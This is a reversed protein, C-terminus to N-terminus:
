RSSEGDPDARRPPASARADAERVEIRRDVPLGTLVQTVGSPWRVELRDVAHADGLGFTPDIQSQSLYSGGTRVMRTQTAGGATVTVQAGIGDRNSTEGVLHVRLWGGHRPGRNEFVAAPGGNTSLALDPDGDGDLDAYAAGRAVRPRALDGGATATVDHFDGGGLNRFLQQPQAFKVQAQVREVERDLHGNALFLDLWGDLDYDFFFTGWGLTLLTAPGLESRRAVDVFFAEGRNHYLGVMEQAFYSVIVSPRGSRDYDAADIGMGGRVQGLSSVAMGSAAGLEEFTGDGRNRFLLNPQTDGAVAVDVPGDGDLDLLAVGMGKMTPVEIGAEATRDAFRVTGGPGLGENRYFRPSDGRYTEPTCYTKTSGDLSCFLDDDATWEVYRSVLLDLRGDADADFLVAGAGLEYADTLGAAATVDAFRGGRNELVRDSGLCALVLDQDGDGDLDGAAGGLCYAGDPGGLAALGWAASAEEFDFRGPRSRNLYLGQPTAKGPRGAFRTGNVFLLDDLGDGNADFAVVGAGITEPLWKEGFAGTNHVFDVGSEATVDVFYAAAPTTRVAEAAGASAEAAPAPAADAAPEGAACGALPVLGLAAALLARTSAVRM